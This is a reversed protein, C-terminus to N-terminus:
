LITYGAQYIMPYEPPNNKKYDINDLLKLGFPASWFPLEDFTDLLRGPDFTNDLYKMM